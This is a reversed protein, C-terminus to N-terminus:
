REWLDCNGEFNGRDLVQRRSELLVGTAVPMLANSNYERM